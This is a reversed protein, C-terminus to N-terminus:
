PLDVTLMQRTLPTGAAIARGARTGLLAAHYRTHLGAAPRISRLNDRTFMEGAAIDAVVYLSRRFQRPAAEAATPAFIARGLAAEADRVARVMAAFEDPEMSFAADPGGDDRSLTLHKEIVRAGLATAVVPVVSGPTHDSLGPVAGFRAAILPIARLHAEDIRAPYAATCKLLCVGPCGHQRLTQLAEDIEGETAMGTSLLVPKGTQAVRTLLPIDVLESSAIKFVDVSLGQLFEVAVADFPTSLFAMGLGAAEAFLPAHWDWPLAARTYLDHLTQDAWITGTVRFEPRDSAITLTDATFTQLKIADAGAAAAARVIQLARTLDQGHNASIEAIIFVPHGAGIGLADFATLAADCPESPQTM